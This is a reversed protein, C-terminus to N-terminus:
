LPHAHRSFIHRVKESCTRFYTWFTAHTSEINNFNDLASALIADHGTTRVATRANFIDRLRVHMHHFQTIREAEKSDIEYDYTRTAKVLHGLQEFKDYVTLSGDAFNHRINGVITAGVIKIIKSDYATVHDVNVYCAVDNDFGITYVTKVVGHIRMTTAEGHTGITDSTM